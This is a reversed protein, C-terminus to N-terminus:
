KGGSEEFSAIHHEIAAGMAQEIQRDFDPDPSNFEDALIKQIQPQAKALKGFSPKAMFLMMDVQEEPTFSQATKQASQHVQASIQDETLKFDSKEVARQYIESADASAAMQSVTKRGVPSRYFTTLEVIDAATFSAEILKAVSTHIKGVSRGMADAVLGRSAKHMAEFLGPYQDDLAKMEADSRLSAVFHKDFERVEMDVLLARPSMLQALETAQSTVPQASQPATAAPAFAPVPSASILVLAFAVFKLM